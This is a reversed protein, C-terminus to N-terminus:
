PGSVRRAQYDPDDTEGAESASNQGGSNPIPKGDTDCMALIKRDVEFEWDVNKVSFPLPYQSRVARPLNSTPWAGRGQDYQGPMLFETEGTSSNLLQVFVRGNWDHKVFYPIHDAIMSGVARLNRIMSYQHTQRITSNLGLGEVTISAQIETGVLYSYSYNAFYDSKDHCEQRHIPLDYIREKRSTVNYLTVFRYYDFGTGSIHIPYAPGLLLKQYPLGTLPDEHKVRVFQFPGSSTVSDDDNEHPAQTDAKTLGPVTALILLVISRLSNKHM